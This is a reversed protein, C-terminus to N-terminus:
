IRNHNTQHESAIERKCGCRFSDGMEQGLNAAEIGVQSADVMKWIEMRDGSKGVFLCGGMVPFPKYWRIRTIVPPHNIIIKGVNVANKLCIWSGVCNFGCISLARGWFAAVSDMLPLPRRVGLLVWM